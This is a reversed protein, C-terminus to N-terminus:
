QTLIKEDLEQLLKVYECVNGELLKFKLCDTEEDM